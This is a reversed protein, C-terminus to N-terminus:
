DAGSLLFKNNLKKYFFLIKTFVNDTVCLQFLQTLKDRVPKPEVPIMGGKEM